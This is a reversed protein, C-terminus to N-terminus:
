RPRSSGIKRLMYDNSLAERLAEFNPPRLGEPLTFEVVTGNAELGLDGRVKATAERPPFIRISPRGDLVKLECGYLVEGKISFVRGNRLREARYPRSRADDQEFWVVIEDHSRM